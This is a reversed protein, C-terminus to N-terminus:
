KHEWQKNLAIEEKTRLTQAVDIAFKLLPQKKNHPLYHYLGENNDSGDLQREFDGNIQAQGITFAHIGLIRGFSQLQQIM